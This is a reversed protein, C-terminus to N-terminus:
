NKKFTSCLFVAKNGDVDYNTKHISDVHSFSNGMIGIFSRLSHAYCQIGQYEKFPIPKHNEKDIHLVVNYGLFGGKKLIRSAELIVNKPDELYMLLSSSLVVDATCDALKVPTDILNAVQTDILFEKNAHDEIALSIMGPVADVMFVKKIKLATAVSRFSTGPGSGLDVLLGDPLNECGGKKLLGIFDNQVECESENMWELYSEPAGKESYFEIANMNM